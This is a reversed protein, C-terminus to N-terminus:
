GLAGHNVMEESYTSFGECHDGVGQFMQGGIVIM